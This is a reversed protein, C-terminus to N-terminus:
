LVIQILIFPLLMKPSKYNELVNGTFYLKDTAMKRKSVHLHIDDFGKLVHCEHIANQLHGVNEFYSEM